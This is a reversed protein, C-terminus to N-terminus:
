AETNRPVRYEPVRRFIWVLTEAMVIPMVVVGMHLGFRTTIRARSLPGPPHGLIDGVLDRGAGHQPRSAWPVCQSDEMGGCPQRLNATAASGPHHRDQYGADLSRETM